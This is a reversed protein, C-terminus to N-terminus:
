YGYKSAHIEKIYMCCDGSFLLGNPLVLIRRTWQTHADANIMRSAPNSVNPVLAL